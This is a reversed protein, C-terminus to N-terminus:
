ASTLPTGSQGEIALNLLRHTLAIDQEDTLWETLQRCKAEWDAAGAPDRNARYAVAMSAAAMARDFPTSEPLDANDLELCQRAYQAAAHGSGAAAHAMALLSLARLRNIPAGLAEWHVYAAHALHLMRERDAATRERGEVLDWAVNNFEVAFWRHAAPLDFSPTPM